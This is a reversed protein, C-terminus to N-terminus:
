EEGNRCFELTIKRFVNGREAKKEKQKRETIVHNLRLTQM